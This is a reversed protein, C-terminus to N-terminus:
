STKVRRQDSCTLAIQLKQTKAYRRIAAKQNNASNQPEGALTRVYATAGVSSRGKERNRKLVAGM